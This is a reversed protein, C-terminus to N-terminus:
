SHYRRHGTPASLEPHALDGGSAVACSQVFSLVNTSPQAELMQLRTLAEMPSSPKWEATSSSSSSVGPGQERGHKLKQDEIYSKMM